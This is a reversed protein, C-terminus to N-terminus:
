RGQSTAGATEVDGVKDVASIKNVFWEPLPTPRHDTMDVHVWVIEGRSLSDAGGEPFIELEFTVSTRGKRGVRVGIEICDDFRIPARYEVLSKVLHFDTSEPSFEEHYTIGVHRFFETIATDFYTLYHANFVVGQMDVESYRVRVPHFFTFNERAM